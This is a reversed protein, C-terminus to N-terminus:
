TDKIMIKRYCGRVSLQSKMNQQPGVGMGKTGLALRDLGSLSMKRKGSLSWRSPGLIASKRSIQFDVLPARLFIMTRPLDPKILYSTRIVDNMGRAQHPLLEQNSAFGEPHNSLLVFPHVHLSANVGLLQVLLGIVFPNNSKKEHHIALEIQPNEPSLDDDKSHYMCNM